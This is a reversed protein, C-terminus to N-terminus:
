HTVTRSAENAKRKLSQKHEEILHQPVVDTGFLWDMPGFGYHVNRLVHHYYHDYSTPMFPFEYSGHSHAINLGGVLGAILISAMHLRTGLLLVGFNNAFTSILFQDVGSQYYGTLANTAFTDHHLKHYKYLPKTHLLWHTIFFAIDALLLQGAIGAIYSFLPPPTPSTDLPRVLYVLLTFSIFQLQNQIVTIPLDFAPITHDAENYHCKFPMLYCGLRLMLRQIPNRAVKDVDRQTKCNNARAYAILKDFMAYCCVVLYFAGLFVAIILLPGFTIGQFRTIPLHHTKAIELTTELTLDPRKTTELITYYAVRAPHLVLTWAVTLGHHVVADFASLKLHLAHLLDTNYIALTYIVLLTIYIM